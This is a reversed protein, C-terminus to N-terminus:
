HGPTSRTELGSRVLLVALTVALLFAAPAGYRAEPALGRSDGVLRLRGLDRQQLRGGGRAAATM